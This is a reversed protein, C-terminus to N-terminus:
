LQTNLEAVSLGFQTTNSSLHLHNLMFSDLNGLIRTYHFKQINVPINQLSARSPKKMQLERVYSHLFSTSYINLM